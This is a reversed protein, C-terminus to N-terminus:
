MEVSSASSFFHFDGSIVSWIVVSLSAHVSYQVVSLVRFGEGGTWNM